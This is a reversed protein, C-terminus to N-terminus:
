SGALLVIARKFLEQERVLPSGEGQPETPSEAANTEKPLEDEAQKLAALAQRKDYGM